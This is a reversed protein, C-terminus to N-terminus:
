LPALEKVYEEPELLGAKRAQYVTRKAEAYFDRIFHREIDTRQERVEAQLQEAEEYTCAGRNYLECIMAESAIAYRYTRLHKM